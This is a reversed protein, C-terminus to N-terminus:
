ISINIVKHDHAELLNRRMQHESLMDFDSKNYCCWVKVKINNVLSMLEMECKTLDELKNRHFFLGMDPIITIGAKGLKDLRRLLMKTMIMVGVFEQSLSYHAKESEVIVISGEKKHKDIDIGTSKLNNVIDMVTDYYPLMLIIENLSQLSRKIYNLYLHRFDAVDSYLILIHNGYLTQTELISDLMGERDVYRTADTGM